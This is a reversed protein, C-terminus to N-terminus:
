CYPINPSGVLKNSENIERKLCDCDVGIHIERGDFGYFIACRGYKGCVMCVSRILSFKFNDEKKNENM